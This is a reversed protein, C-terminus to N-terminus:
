QVRGTERTVVIPVSGGVTLTVTTNPLPRGQPDFRFGLAPALAVGGPLAVAYPSGAGLRTVPQTCAAGTITLPNLSLTLGTPAIGVCVERNKAMAVRQAYRLAIRVEAAGDRTNFSQQNVMRPVAVAALIGALTLVAVLEALTYGRDM